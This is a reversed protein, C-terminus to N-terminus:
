ANSIKERCATWSFLNIIAKPPLNFAGATTDIDRCCDAARLGDPFIGSYLIVDMLEAEMIVLPRVRRDPTLVMHRDGGESYADTLLVRQHYFVPDSWYRVLVADRPRLLESMSGSPRSVSASQGALPTVCVVWAFASGLACFVFYALLCLTSQISRCCPVRGVWQKELPQAESKRQLLMAFVHPGNKWCVVSSMLLETALSNQPLALSMKLSRMRVEQLCFHFWSERVGAYLCTILIGASLSAPGPVM